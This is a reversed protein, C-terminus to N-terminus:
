WLVCCFVFFCSPDGVIVVVVVVVRSIDFIEDEQQLVGVVVDGM